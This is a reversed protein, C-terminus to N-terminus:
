TEARPTWGGIQQMLSLLNGVGWHDTIKGNRVRMIDVTEFQIRRHTPAVGLLPGEHTGHYTKYTTVRDGDALQFHIEAHFDPFAARLYTYLKRVGLKDPTTNPQPTHDVFDDAFLEEFVDFRGRGQVEETNRRVVAKAAESVTLNSMQGPQKLDAPEDKGQGQAVRLLKAAQEVGAVPLNAPDLLGVQVLLSAQDWWIHEHAIKGDEFKMVLVHPIEVRKGTPPIGPLLYDWQTDHTFSLIFEDVVQDKGVTRSIPTVKADKPIQNIFHQGYFRRVGQGGFGGTLSSVNYVYPEPIMTKMTANVDHDAFERQIHADCLAGLDPVKRSNAASMKLRRKNHIQKLYPLGQKREITEDGQLIGFLNAWGLITKTSSADFHTDCRFVSPRRHGASWRDVV